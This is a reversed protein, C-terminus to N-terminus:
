LIRKCGEQKYIKWTYETNKKKVITEIANNIEVENTFLEHLMKSFLLTHTGENLTIEVTIKPIFYHANNNTYPSIGHYTRINSLIDKSSFYGNYDITKYIEIISQLKEMPSTFSTFTMHNTSLHSIIPWELNKLLPPNILPTVNHIAIFNANAVTNSSFITNIDIETALNRNNCLIKAYGNEHTPANEWNHDEILQIYTLTGGHNSYDNKIEKKELFYSKSQDLSTSSDFHHDIYSSFYPHYIKEQANNQTYIKKVTNIEVCEDKRKYPSIAINQETHDISIYESITEFLNVVPTCHLLLTNKNIDKTKPHFYRNVPIVINFNQTKKLKKLNKKSEIINEINVDFFMFKEPLVVYETMLKLSKNTIKDHYYISEDDEFGLFNVKGLFSLEKEENIESFAISDTTSSYTSIIEYLDINLSKSNDIFFRIKNVKLDEFSYGKMIDLKISIAINSNLNKCNKPLEYNSLVVFKLEKIEIPLVGVDYITKYTVKEGNPAIANIESKQPIHQNILKSDFQLQMITSSPISKSFIPCLKDIIHFNLSSSTTDIQQQISATLFAFAELMHQINPDNSGNKNWEINKASQLHKKAFIRGENLLYDIESQYYGLLQKMNVHKPNSHTQQNDHINKSGNQSSNQTIELTKNM